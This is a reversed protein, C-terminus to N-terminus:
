WVIILLFFSWLFPFIMEFDIQLFFPSIVYLSAVKPFVVIGIRRFHFLCSWLCDFCCSIIRERRPYGRELAKTSCRDGQITFCISVHPLRSPLCHWCICPLPLLLATQRFLGVPSPTVTKLSWVAFLSSVPVPGLSNRSHTPSTIMSISHVFLVTGWTDHSLSGKAVALAVAVTWMRWSKRHSSRLRRATRKM